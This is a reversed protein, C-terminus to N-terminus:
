YRMELLCSHSLNTIISQVMIISYRFVEKYIGYAIVYNMVPKGKLDETNPLDFNVRFTFGIEALARINM